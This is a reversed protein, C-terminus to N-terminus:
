RGPGGRACNRVSPAHVPERVTTGPFLTPTSSCITRARPVQNAGTQQHARFKVRVRATGNCVQKWRQFATNQKAQDTRYELATAGLLATIANDNVFGACNTNPDDVSSMSIRASWVLKARDNTHANEKRTCTFSGAQKNHNVGYLCGETACSQRTLTPSAAQVTCVVNAFFKPVQHGVLFATLASWNTATNSLTDTNLNALFQAFTALQPTDNSFPWDNQSLTTVSSYKNLELRVEHGKGNTKEYVVVVANVVLVVDGAQLHQGTKTQLVVLDGPTNKTPDALIVRYFTFEHGDNRRSRTTPGLDSVVVAAVHVLEGKLQQTVEVLPTVLRGRSNDFLAALASLQQSSAEDCKSSTDATAKYVRVTRALKPHGQHLATKDLQPELGEFTHSSGPVLNQLAPIGDSPPDETADVSSTIIIVFNNTKLDYFTFADKHWM